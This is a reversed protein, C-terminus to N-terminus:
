PQPGIRLYDFAVDSQDQVSGTAAIQVDLM